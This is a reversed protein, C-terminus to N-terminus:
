LASTLIKLSGVASAMSPYLMGMNILGQLSSLRNQVVREKFYPNDHLISLGGNITRISRTYRTIVPQYFVLLLNLYLVQVSEVKAYPPNFRQITCYGVRRTHNEHLIALNRNSHTCSFYGIYVSPNSLTFIFRDLPCVRPRSLGCSAYM